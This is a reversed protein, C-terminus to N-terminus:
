VSQDLFRSKLEASPIMCESRKGFVRYRYRSILKYVANRLFGPVIRFAYLWSWGRLNKAIRLAAESREFVQNNEVLIITDLARSDRGFRKLLNM